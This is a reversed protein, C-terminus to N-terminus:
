DESRPIAPAGAPAVPLNTAPITDGAPLDDPKPPFLIASRRLQDLLVLVRLHEERERRLEAALRENDRELLENVRNPPPRPPDDQLPRLTGIAVGTVVFAASATAVAVALAWCLNRLM